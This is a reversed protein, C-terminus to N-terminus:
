PSVVRVRAPKLPSPRRRAPLIRGSKVRFTIVRRLRKGSRVEVRWLGPKEVAQKVTLANELNPANVDIEMQDGDFRNEYMASDDEVIVGPEELHDPTDTASERCYARVRVVQGKAGLPSLHDRCAEKKGRKFVVDVDDDGGGVRLFFEVALHDGTDDVWGLPLYRDRKEFWSQIVKKRDGMFAENDPGRVITAKYLGIRGAAGEVAIDYTGVPNRGRYRLRTTVMRFEGAPLAEFPVEVTGVLRKRDVFGVKLPGEEPGAVTFAVRLMGRAEVDVTTLGEVLSGARATAPALLVTLALMPILSRM